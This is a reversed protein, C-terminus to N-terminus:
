EPAASVPPGGPRVSTPRRPLDSFHWLRCRALLDVASHKRHLLSTAGHGNLKALDSYVVRFAKARGDVGNGSFALVEGEQLRRWNFLYASENLPIDFAAVWLDNRNHVIHNNSPAVYWGSTSCNRSM